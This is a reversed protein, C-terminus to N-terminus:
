QKQALRKEGLSFPVDAEYRVHGVARCFLYFLFVVTIIISVFCHCCSDNDRKMTSTIKKKYTGMSNIKKRWEISKSVRFRACFQMRCVM